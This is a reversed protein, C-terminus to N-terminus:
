ERAWRVQYLYNEDGYFLDTYNILVLKEESARNARSSSSCLLPLYIQIACSSLGGGATIYLM